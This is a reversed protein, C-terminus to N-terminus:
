FSIGEAKMSIVETEALLFHDLLRIEMAKLVEGLQRTLTIDQESFEGQGGPHNHVCIVGTAGRDLAARVVKKTYIHARNEIGEELVVYDLIRNGQNLLLLGFVEEAKGGLTRLLFDTVDEPGSVKDGKISEAPTRRLEGCVRLLLAAHDGIGELSTLADVKQDLVRELSGFRELLNLALGKTDMRPIAFTLLLELRERESFASWGSELYREKLRTRHGHHSSSM